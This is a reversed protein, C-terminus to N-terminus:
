PCTNGYAIVEISGYAMLDKMCPVRMLQTRLLANRLMAYDSNNALTICGNSLVGPHLRFHERKVGEVWLSDGISWNDPYLAFWESRRFEAGSHYKNYTDKVWAIRKSFFGGEGRQVIWYKGAPLPGNEAIKGCGGRNRYAGNGSFAMFTGVGPFSLPAIDANNLIFKGHLAM